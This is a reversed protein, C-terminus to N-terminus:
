PIFPFSSIPLYPPCLVTNDCGPPIEMCVISYRSGSPLTGNIGNPYGPFAGSLSPILESCLVTNPPCTTNSPGQSGTPGQGGTSGSILLSPNAVAAANCQAETVSTGNLGALPTSGSTAAFSATLAVIASSFPVSATTATLSHSISEIATAQGGGFPFYYSSM